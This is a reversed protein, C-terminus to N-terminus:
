LFPMLSISSTCIMSTSSLLHPDTTAVVEKSVLVTPSYYLYTSLLSFLAVRHDYTFTYTGVLPTYDM